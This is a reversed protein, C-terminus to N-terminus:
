KEKLPCKASVISRNLKKKKQSNLKKLLDLAEKDNGNIIPVEIEWIPIDEKGENYHLWYHCNPCLLICKNMEKKIRKQSFKLGGSINFEKKEKNHHFQLIETHEKWGCLDCCKDKKYTLVFDRNKNYKKAKQKKKIEKYKELNKEKWKKAYIKKRMKVNPRQNYKKIYERKREKIKPRQEYERRKARYEPTRQRERQKAMAEPNKRYEIWKKKNKKRYEKHYSKMDVTKIKM